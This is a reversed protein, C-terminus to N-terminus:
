FILSKDGMGSTVKKTECDLIVPSKSIWDMGLIIDFSKLEINCFGM